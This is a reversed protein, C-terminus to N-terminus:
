LSNRLKETVKELNSKDDASKNLRAIANYSAQVIDECKTLEIEIQNRLEQPSYRLKKFDM